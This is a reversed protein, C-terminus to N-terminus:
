PATKARVLEAVFQAGPMTLFGPAHARLRELIMAEDLPKSEQPNM